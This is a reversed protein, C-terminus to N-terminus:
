GDGDIGREARLFHELERVLEAPDPMDTEVGGGDFRQELTKIYERLQEDEGGACSVSGDPPARSPSSGRNRRGGDPPQVWRVRSTM